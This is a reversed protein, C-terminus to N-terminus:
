NAAPVRLRPLPLLSYTRYKIRCACGKRTRKLNIDRESMGVAAHKCHSIGSRAARLCSTEVQEEEKTEDLKTGDGDSAEDIAIKDPMMIIM